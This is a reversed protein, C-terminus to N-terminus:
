HKESSISGIEMERMDTVENPKDDSTEAFPDSNRGIMDAPRREPHNLYSHRYGYGFYIVFGIAMWIFLREITPVTATAILGVSLIAGIGPILFPGGPVKFRRPTDKATFRLIIVGVNVLFFAFLTGISTMEGLVDIPLVGGAVACVIGTIITTIYPTHFKPHVKAVFRPFLGDCAMAYFIRPQGMLLILMVSTLGAIAGINIIIVLWKWGLAKEIAYTLPHAVGLEAYPLLGVLVAAVAIYLVTCVVLSTLIGIPLDRQPNKAEQAATSVADFGIYAFFVVTSATFIGKGGYKGDDTREPVFPTYYDSNVKSCCAFIFLLIVTLKVVVMAANFRASAKIGFVLVVTVVLVIVIAPLNMYNGTAEFAQTAQDFRVPAQILKKSFTTGSVTELFSVMYGSWGVSVTAAGVLYELILDWGITWALFEGMTAYTYTYASGAVPIMSSLESYSLAAFAAALGSIIFSIVVAPGAYNAAATGTLVFIGTGIIAGIGLGTL